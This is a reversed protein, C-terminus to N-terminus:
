IKSQTSSKWHSPWLTCPCVLKLYHIPMDIMDYCTGSPEVESEFLGRIYVHSLIWVNVRVIM